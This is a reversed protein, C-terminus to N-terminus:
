VEDEIEIRSPNKDKDSILQMNLYDQYTEAQDRNSPWTMVQKLTKKTLPM